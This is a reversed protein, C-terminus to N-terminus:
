QRSAPNQVCKRCASTRVLWSQSTSLIIQDLIPQEVDPLEEISNYQQALQQLENIDDVTYYKGTSKGLVWDTFCEIIIEKIYHSNSSEYEVIRTLVHFYESRTLGLPISDVVDIIDFKCENRDIIESLQEHAQVSLEDQLLRNYLEL